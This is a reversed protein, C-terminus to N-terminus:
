LSKQYHQKLVVVKGESKDEKMTCLEKVIEMFLSRREPTSKKNISFIKLLAKFMIQGHNLWIEKRVADLSLTRLGDADFREEESNNGQEIIKSKKFTRNTGGFDDDSSRGGGDSSAALDEKKLASLTSPRSMSASSQANSTSRVPPGSHNDDPSEKKRLFDRFSSSSGFGPGDDDDEDDEGQDEVDAYGGDDSQAEEPENGANVDDDDFQENADYDLDQYEASIDRDYFDAAMAAGDNGLSSSYHQQDGVSGVKAGRKRRKVDDDDNKVTGNRRKGFSRNGGFESDNTGGIVGEGDVAVDGDAVSLLEKRSRIAVKGDKFAVDSMVDDAAEINNNDLSRAALRDFLRSKTSTTQAVGVRQSDRMRQQIAAKQSAVQADAESLKSLARLKYPQSFSYFNNVMDVQVVGKDNGNCLQSHYNEVATSMLVFNSANFETRGEYRSLWAADEDDGKVVDTSHLVWQREPERKRRVKKRRRQRLREEIEEDDSDRAAARAEEYMKYSQPVTNFNVPPVVSPVFKAVAPFTVDPALLLRGDAGKTAASNTNSPGKILTLTFSEGPGLSKAHKSLLSDISTPNKSNANM